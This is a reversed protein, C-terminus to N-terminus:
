RSEIIRKEIPFSLKNNLVGLYKIAREIVQFFYNQELPKLIYDFTHLKFVKEM